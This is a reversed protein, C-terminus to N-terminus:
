ASGSQRSRCHRDVGPLDRSRLDVRSPSLWAALRGLGDGCRHARDPFRKRLSTQFEQYLEGPAFVWVADGVRLLSYPYAYGDGTAASLRVLQRNMQEIRARCEAARETQGAARARDEEATWVGLQENTVAVSPLDSRYSLPVIKATSTWRAQRALDPAALPEHRWTGLIAGSVVAGAYIFCTGSPPLAELAALAAFGLQRGNRDAIEADAVFGDRPGLDGSAGQLFVCPAGTQREVVERMAGVYDPSIRTNEWALTTPHCAYNVLTGITGRENAVRAALVSDDAPGDPNFGCVFRRDCEDYFDRHAALSCRGRGYVITAPRTQAVAEVAVQAARRALDDLYGGLLEGGPLHSRSRSMWGSGHTHSLCVHPEDGNSGLARVIEGRILRMEADDLVCHDLAVVLSRQSPDALSELCLATALLPRHVGTARDHQAAGWMRHYIGVPPTIDIRAIGARCRSQPTDVRKM